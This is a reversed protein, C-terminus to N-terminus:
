LLFPRLSWALLEINVLQSLPSLFPFLKSPLSHRLLQVWASINLSTPTSSFYSHHTSIQPYTFTCLPWCPEESFQLASPGRLAVVAWTVQSKFALNIASPSYCFHHSSFRPRLSGTLSSPRTRCRLLVSLPPQAHVTKRPQTGNFAVM